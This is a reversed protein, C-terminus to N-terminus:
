ANTATGVDTQGDTTRGTIMDLFSLLISWYNSHFM